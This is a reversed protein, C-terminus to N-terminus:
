SRRELLAVDCTCIVRYLSICNDFPSGGHGPLTFNTSFGLRKALIYTERLPARVPIEPRIHLPLSDSHIAHCKAEIDARAAQSGQALSTLGGSKVGGRTLM